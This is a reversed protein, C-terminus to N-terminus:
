GPILGTDGANAPLNKVVLSAVKWVKKFNIKFLLIGTMWPMRYARAWAVNMKYFLPWPREMSLNGETAPAPNAKCRSEFM